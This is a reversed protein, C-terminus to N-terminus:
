DVFRMRPFNTRPKANAMATDWAIPTAFCAAPRGTLAGTSGFRSFKDLGQFVRTGDLTIHGAALVDRNLLTSVTGTESRASWAGCIGVKGDTEFAKTLVYIVAGSDWRAGGVTYTSDTTQGDIPKGPAVCGALLALALATSTLRFTNRM